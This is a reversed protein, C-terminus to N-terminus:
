RWVKMRLKLLTNNENVGVFENVRVQIADRPLNGIISRAGTNFKETSSNYTFYELSMNYDPGKIGLLSLIVTLNTGNLAVLRNIKDVDIYHSTRLGLSSINPYNFDADSLNNWHTPLGPTMFLVDSAHTAILKLDRNNEVTEAKNLSFNWIWLVSIIIFTFVTLAILTDISLLQGRAM